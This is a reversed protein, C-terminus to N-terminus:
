FGVELLRSVDFFLADIGAPNVKLELMDFGGELLHQNGDFEFGLVELLEYEDQVYIVSFATQASRGDGTSIIAVKLRRRVEVRAIGLSAILGLDQARLRHGKQLVTGGQM